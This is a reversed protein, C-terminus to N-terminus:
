RVHNGYGDNRCGCPLYGWPWDPPAGVAPPNDLRTRPDSDADWRLFQELKKVARADCTPSLGLKMAVFTVAAMVDALEDTLAKIRTVGDPHTYGALINPYAQIKAIVQILEGCEESVKTLGHNHMPM